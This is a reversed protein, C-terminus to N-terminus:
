GQTFIVLSLISKATRAPLSLLPTRHVSCSESAPLVAVPPETGALLLCGHAIQYNGDKVIMVLCFFDKVILLSM